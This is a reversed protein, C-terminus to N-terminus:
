MRFRTKKNSKDVSIDEGSTGTSIVLKFGHTNQNQPTRLEFFLLVCTKFSMTRWVDSKDVHFGSCMWVCAVPILFVLVYQYRVTSTMTLVEHEATRKKQTLMNAQKAKVGCSVTDLHISQSSLHKSGELSVCLNTLDLYECWCLELFWMTLLDRDQTRAFSIGRSKLHVLTKATSSSWTKRLYLCDRDKSQPRVRAKRENRCKVRLLTTKLMYLHREPFTNREGCQVNQSFSWKQGQHRCIKVNDHQMSSEDPRIPSRELVSVPSQRTLWVISSDITALVADFKLLIAKPIVLITAVRPPEHAFVTRKGSLMPNYM